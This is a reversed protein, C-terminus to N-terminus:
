QVHLFRLIWHKPGRAATEPTMGRRAVICGFVVTFIIKALAFAAAMALTMEDPKSCAQWTCHFNQIAELAAYILLTTALIGYVWTGSVSWAGVAVAVFGMIDLGVGVLNKANQKSLGWIDQHNNYIVSIARPAAIFALLYLAAVQLTAVHAGRKDPLPKGKPREGPGKDATERTLLGGVYILLFAALDGLYDSLEQTAQSIHGQEQGGYYGLVHAWVCAFLAMVTFLRSNEILFATAIRVSFLLCGFTISWAISNANTGAWDVANSISQM